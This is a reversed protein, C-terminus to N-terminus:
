YFILSLIALKQAKKDNNLYFNESKLITKLKLIELKLYPKFILFIAKIAKSKV